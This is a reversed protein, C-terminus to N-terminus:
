RKVFTASMLASVRPDLTVATPATDSAFTFTHRRDRLEVKEIRPEVRPEAGVVDIALELPLRFPDGSQMQALDVIVQRAAADYRWGGDLRPTEGRTLWQDFFWRLETHSVEEMVARFDDTSANADRYRRYYERIGTWFTEAGILGRLMHLTWGGKQYIQGSLVRSMDALNDHVIRYGPTKREFDVVSQRSRKLGDVFADRGQAHEVFLLTFYTAFGESLWVDDWDRETVANGFWQHAIEHAVLRDIREAGTVSKEGYFIASAHETGGGLGAAEVNALKEYPYPGIHEDFYALVQRTVREFDRYGADRDQPYVWTAIPIGNVSGAHHSAFRAVGIANLWTSIPVSQKWHTRRVGPELDLEELLLGNAVVQYASPATVIFESTAKDSPHDIVPLWERAKDPWNLAFFTRENYKNPGIRLGSAPTGRYRVTVDLRQGATSPSPLTIVLRHAAHTFRLPAEGSRVASVTMGTGAGTTALDLTVETRGPRDFRLTATTEGDIEDTDDRLTIRFVYHVADVGAQRPYTDAWLTATGPLAVALSLLVRFLAARM